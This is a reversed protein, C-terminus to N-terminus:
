PTTGTAVNTPDSTAGTNIASVRYAYQTAPALNIDTYSTVGAATTTLLTWSGTGTQREIRFGTENTSHNTWNLQVASASLVRLGLDSPAM